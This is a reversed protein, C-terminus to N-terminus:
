PVLAGDRGALQETESESSESSSTSDESSVECLCSPVRELDRRLLRSEFVDRSINGLRWLLSQLGLGLSPFVIRGSIPGAIVKTPRSSSLCVDRYSRLTLAATLSLTFRSPLQGIYMTVWNTYIINITHGLLSFKLQICCRHFHGNRKGISKDTVTREVVKM